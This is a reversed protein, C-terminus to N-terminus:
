QQKKIKALEERLEKIRFERSIFLDHFKELEKNKDKLDKNVDELEQTREKVLKELNIKYNELEAEIKVRETIDHIISLLVNKGDIIVPSSYVEVDKVEGSAVKHKFQFYNLNKSDALKMRLKVEEKSLMNIEYINKSTIDTYAYFNKAASNADLIKGSDGDIVLKISQDDEFFTKFRKESEQIAKEAKKRESIDVAVGVAGTIKNNIEIPYFGFLTPFEEGNKRRFYTEGRFDRKKILTLTKIRELIDTKEEVFLEKIEKGYIENSKYGLIKEAGPSFFDVVLKGEKIQLGVIAVHIAAEYIATLFEEREKIENSLGEKELIMNNLSDSISNFEGFMFKKSDLLKSEKGNTKFFNMFYEVEMKLRKNIHFIALFSLILVIINISLVLMLDKRHTSKHTQIVESIAAEPNQLYFGAGIIWKWDSYGKMYSLKPEPVDSDMPAFYYEM